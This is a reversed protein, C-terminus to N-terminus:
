PTAWRTSWTPPRSSSTPSAQSSASPTPGRSTRSSSARCARRSPASSSSAALPAALRVLRARASPQNRPDETDVARSARMAPVVRLALNLASGLAFGVVGALLSGTTWIATALLVLSLIGNVGQGLAIARMEERRQHYGYLVDAVSDFAKALGFVAIVPLAERGGVVLGALAVVAVLVVASWSRVVLFDSLRHSHRVDTALVIRLQLQTLVLVPAAVAGALAFVGVDAPGLVRAIVAVCAWQSLTYVLNGGVTWGIPGRLGADALRHGHEGCRGPLVDSTARRPPATLRAPRPHADAGVPVRRRWRGRHARHRGRDPRSPRSSSSASAAARSSWSSGAHPPAGRAAGAVVRQARADAGLGRPRPRAVGPRHRLSLDAWLEAVYWSGMGRGKLYEGGLVRWSLMQAFIGSQEAREVTQGSLAGAGARGDGAAAPGLLDIVHGFSWLYGDPVQARYVFGYGVVETSVGQSYLTEWLPALTGETRRAPLTRM